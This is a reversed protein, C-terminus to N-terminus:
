NNQFYNEVNKQCKYLKEIYPFFKNLDEIQIFYVILILQIAM